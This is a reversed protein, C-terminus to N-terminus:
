SSKQRVPPLAAPLSVTPSLSQRIEPLLREYSQALVAPALRSPSFVRVLLRPSRTRFVHPPM